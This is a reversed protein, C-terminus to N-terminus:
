GKTVQEILESIEPILTQWLGISHFIHWDEAIKGNEIRYIALIPYSVVKGSPSINFFPGTHTGKFFWRGIVRDGDGLLEEQTWKGDPFARRLKRFAAKYEECGVDKMLPNPDHRIYDAALIDDSADFDGSNIAKALRRVVEKNEVAHM